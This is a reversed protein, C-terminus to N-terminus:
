KAPCVREKVSPKRSEPRCLPEGEVIVLADSTKLCTEHACRALDQANTVPLSKIPCLREGPDPLAGFRRCMPFGQRFVLTEGDGICRKRSCAQVEHASSVETVTYSQEPSYRAPSIVVRAEETSESRPKSVSGHSAFLSSSSPTKAPASAGSVVLTQAVNEVAKEKSSSDAAAAVPAEVFHVGDEVVAPTGAAKEPPASQPATVKKKKTVSQSESRSPTVMSVLWGKVPQFYITLATIVFVACMVGLVIGVYPPRKGFAAPSQKGYLMRLRDDESPKAGKHPTHPVPKSVPPMVPEPKMPELKVAESQPAPVEETIGRVEQTIDRASLGISAFFQKSSSDESMLPHDLIPEHTNENGLSAGESDSIVVAEKVRPESVVADAIDKEESRFHDRLLLLYANRIVDFHTQPPYIKDRFLWTIEYYPKGQSHSGAVDGFVQSLDNESDIVIRFSIKSICTQDLFVDSDVDPLRKHIGRIVEDNLSVTAGLSLIEPMEKHVRTLIELFSEAPKKIKIGSIKPWRVCFSSPTEFILNQLTVGTAKQQGTVTEEVNGGPLQRVQRIRVDSQSISYKKM